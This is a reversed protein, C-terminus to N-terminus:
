RTIDLGCWHQLLKTITEITWTDNRHVRVVISQSHCKREMHSMIVDDDDDDDNTDNM